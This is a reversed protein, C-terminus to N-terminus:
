SKKQKLVQEVEDRLSAPIDDWALDLVISALKDEGQELLRDAERMSRRVDQAVQEVRSLKSRDALLTAVKARSWMFHQRGDKLPTAIAWGDRLAEPTPMKTVADRM